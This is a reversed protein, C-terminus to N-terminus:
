GEGVPPDGEAMPRLRLQRCVAKSIERGTMLLAMDRIMPWRSSRSNVSIRHRVCEAYLEDRWLLELLRMAHPEVGQRLGGRPMSWRGRSDPGWQPADPGPRPWRWWVRGGGYLLPKLREEYRPGFFKTDLVVIFEHCAREFFEIQRPLRNLTDKGSKIEVFTVRETGIAALDVRCQGHDVNLEHVIRAGPINARLVPVVADRIAREEASGAM